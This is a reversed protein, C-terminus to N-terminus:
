APPPLPKPSNMELPMISRCPPANSTSLSPSPCPHVNLMDTAMARPAPAAPAVPAAPPPIAAPAGMASAFRCSAHGSAPDPDYETVSSDRRLLWPATLGHRLRSM